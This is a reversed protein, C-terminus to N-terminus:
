GACEYKGAETSVNIGRDLDYNIMRNNHYWFIFASAETSQVVRCILKLTSDPTLYKVQPGVIEARAETVSFRCLLSSSSNTPSQSRSLFVLELSHLAAAYRFRKTPHNKKAGKYTSSFLHFSYIVFQSYYGWTTINNTCKKKIHRGM